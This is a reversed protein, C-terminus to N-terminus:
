RYLRALYREQARAARQLRAIGSPATRLMRETWLDAAHALEDEMAGARRHLALTLATRAAHVPLMRAAYARLWAEGDEAVAELGGRERLEGAACAAGSALLRETERVGIRRSMVAAGAVTLQGRRLEPYAFRAREGAVVVHCARALDSGDGSALGHVAAMTVLMGDLGSANRCAAEAAARAYADLGDRDLTAICGILYDLDAGLLFSRGTGRFALFRVPCSEARGEGGWLMMLARQVRVVSELLPLTVVPKPEPRLTVWLTRITPEYALEVQPLSGAALEVTGIVEAADPAAEVRSLGDRQRQRFGAM